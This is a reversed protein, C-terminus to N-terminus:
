EGLERAISTLSGSPRPKMRPPAARTTSSTACAPRRTPRPAACCTAAAPRPRSAGPPTATCSPSTTAPVAGAHYRNGTQEFYQVAREYHERAPEIQGVDDYLNGLQNHMPGLDAVASPPCLALAQHYHQEAAQAHQLSSPTRSAASAPKTSASTISWASKNSAGPAAWRMTRTTCSWAAGTPPKPPTWTASPPCTEHLRPRPQLPHHSRRRHRRHASLLRIAEEYAAVCDPSGQEMLIHGLAACASVGLTRIRHRQDADLPAAAPLALAPAAQQRDWAVLKAQLAAAAPLDRDHDQALDVRYSWSWATATKGAPSPATTRRATTPRRDGGGAPGMRGHPGPVRLPHAPGAHRLHRPGVLRAPPRRPPRAAPQGGGAGAARHRGPQRRHIPRHYYNGLEGMAEVWARLAAEATSRGAQGDYHRAFLQRLYWPLAPHITYYGTIRSAHDTLPTLLGVEAARDLLATLQETTKGALEPLAYDGIQGDTSPTWM